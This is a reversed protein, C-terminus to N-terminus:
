RAAGAEEDQAAPEPPVRFPRGRGGGAAAEEKEEKEAEEEAGPRLPTNAAAPEPPSERKEPRRRKAMDHRPLYHAASGRPRPQAAAAAAAGVIRPAPIVPLGPPHGARSGAGVERAGGRAPRPRPGRPQSARGLGEVWRLRARSGPDGGGRSPSSPRPSALGLHREGGQMNLRPSFGLGPAGPPPVPRPDPGPPSFSAPTPPANWKGGGGSGSNPSGSLGPGERNSM